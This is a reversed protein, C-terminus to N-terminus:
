SYEVVARLCKGSHLATIADKTAAVGKFNHTIYHDIPLEGAMYKDVLMPIDRRSKFGGFATGIRFCCYLLLLSSM